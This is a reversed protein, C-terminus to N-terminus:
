NVKLWGRQAAHFATDLRQGTIDGALDYEQMALAEQIQQLALLPDRMNTLTHERLAKPFHVVQRM